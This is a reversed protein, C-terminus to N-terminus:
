HKTGGLLDRLGAFPTHKEGQGAAARGACREHRPALPLALLLEDEILDHVAMEKGAVIQEPGEAEVREADIEAQTARLLLSSEIRLPHELPGLCRQCILQLAGQLRMRLAPWGHLEPVGQLEYRVTGSDTHLSERLRPFDALPWDGQLRSGNRAFELGDIVPQHPM